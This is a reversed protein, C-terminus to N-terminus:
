PCCDRLPKSHRPNASSQSVGESITRTRSTGSEGFFEGDARQQADLVYSIVALAIHHTATNAVEVM